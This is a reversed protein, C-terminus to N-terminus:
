PSVALEAALKAIADAATPRGHTRAAESMALWRTGGGELLAVIVQGLEDPSATRRGAGLAELLDANGEEQGPVINDVLMPCGAALAEQVSAGGAKGIVLHSAALLEPMKDTWGIIETPPKTMKEVAKRLRSDHRGLVITLETDAPTQAEASAIAALTRRVARRKTSPTYLIRFREELKSFGESRRVEAIKPDVPFGTIHIRDLSVGEASLFDASTQDAVAYQGAAHNIWAHNISSSDTVVTLLGFPLEQRGFLREVLHAFLPYTSVVTAPRHTKLFEALGRTLKPTLDLTGDGMPMRDAISYLGQWLRPWRVIVSRYAASAADMAAPQLQGLLDIAGTTPLGRLRLAKAISRAATNHGEGFSATLVAIPYSLELGSM